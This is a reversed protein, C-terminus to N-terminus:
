KVTVCIELFVLKERSNRDNKAKRQSSLSCKSSSVILKIEQFPQIQDLHFCLSLPGNIHNITKKTTATAICSEMSEGEHFGKWIGIAQVDIDCATCLHLSLSVMLERVCPCVHAWVCVFACHCCWLAWSSTYCVENSVNMTCNSSFASCEFISQIWKVQFLFLGIGWRFSVQLTGRSPQKCTSLTSHSPSFLSSLDLGSIFIEHWSNM